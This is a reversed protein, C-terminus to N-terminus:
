ARQKALWGARFTRFLVWTSDIDPNRKHAQWETPAYWSLWEEFASNMEAEPSEENNKM